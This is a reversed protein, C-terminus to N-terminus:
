KNNERGLELQHVLSVFSLRYIDRFGFLMTFLLVVRSRSIWPVSLRMDTGDGRAREGGWRLGLGTEVKDRREDGKPDGERTITDGM